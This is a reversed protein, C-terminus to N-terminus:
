ARLECICSMHMCMCRYFLHVKEATTTEIWVIRFCGRNRQFHGAGGTKGSFLEFTGCRLRGLLTSVCSMFSSWYTPPYGGAFRTHHM